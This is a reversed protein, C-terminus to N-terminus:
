PGQNSYIFLRKISKSDADIEASVHSILTSDLFHSWKFLYRPVLGKVCSNPKTVEPPMFMGLQELNYGLKEVAQKALNIAQEENLNWKGVFDKVRVEHDWAFFEDPAAFGQISNKEAYFSFGNHLTIKGGTLHGAAPMTFRLVDREALPTRVPLGLKTIYSNLKSLSNTVFEDEMASESEGVVKKQVVDAASPIKPSPRWLNFNDFSFSEIKGDTANIEVECSVANRNPAWWKILYRAINNTGVRAPATVEPDLDAYLMAENYGLKRIYDRAIRVADLGDLKVRTLFSSLDESDQLNYVSNAARFSQVHGHNYWFQAGNRFIFHGGVDDSWPNPEFRVIEPVSSADDGQVNIKTAVGTVPNFLLSLAANSYAATIKM